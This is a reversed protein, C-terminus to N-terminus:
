EMRNFTNKCYGYTIWEKPPVGIIESFNVHWAMCKSTICLQNNCDKDKRDPCWKQTAGLESILIM